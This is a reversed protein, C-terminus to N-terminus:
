TWGSWWFPRCSTRMRRSDGAPSSVSATFMPRVHVSRRGAMGSARRPLSSCRKRPPFALPGAEQAPRSSLVRGGNRDIVGVFLVDGTQELERFFEATGPSFLGPGTPRVFLGRRLSSEVAQLVSRSTMTLYQTGAEEQQRLTQGTTVILSLGITVLTLVAIIITSREANKDAIEM